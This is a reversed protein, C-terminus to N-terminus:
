KAGRQLSTHRAIVAQVLQQGRFSLKSASPRSLLCFEHFGTQSIQRRSSPLSSSTPPGQDKGGSHRFGPGGGGAVAAAVRAPAAGASGQVPDDNACLTSRGKRWGKGKRLCIPVLQASSVKALQRVEQTSISQGNYLLVCQFIPLQTKM